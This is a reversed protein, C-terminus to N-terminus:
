SPISADLSVTCLSGPSSAGTGLTESSGGPEFKLQPVTVPQYLNSYVTQAKRRLFSDLWSNLPSPKGGEPMAEEPRWLQVLSKPFFSVQDEGNSLTLAPAAGPCVSLSRDVGIAM